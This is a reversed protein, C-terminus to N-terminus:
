LKALIKELLEIQRVAINYNKYGLVSGKTTNVYEQTKSVKYLHWHGLIVLAPLSGFFMVIMWYPNTLKLVAYLGLIGAILYKAQNIFDLGRSLYIWYRVLVNSTGEWYRPTYTGPDIPKFDDM